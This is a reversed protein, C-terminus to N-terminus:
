VPSSRATRSTSSEALHTALSSHSGAGHAGPNERFALTIEHQADGPIDGPRKEDGETRQRQMEHRNTGHIKWDPVRFPQPVQLGLEACDVDTEVHRVMNTDMAPKDGTGPAASDREEQVAVGAVDRMAALTETLDRSGAGRNQHNIIASVAFASPPWRLIPEISVALGRVLVKQLGTPGLLDYHVALRQAGRYSNVEHGPVRTSTHD